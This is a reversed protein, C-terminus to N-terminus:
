SPLLQNVSFVYRSYLSIIEEARATTLPLDIPGVGEVLLGPSIYREFKGGMCFSGPRISKLASSLCNRYDMDPSTM